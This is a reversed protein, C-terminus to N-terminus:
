RSSPYRSVELSRMLNVGVPRNIASRITRSITIYYRKGVISVVFSTNVENKARIKRIEPREFALPLSFPRLPVRSTFTGSQSARTVPTNSAAAAKPKTRESFHFGNEYGASTERQHM